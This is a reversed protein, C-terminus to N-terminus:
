KVQINNKQVISVGELELGNKVAKKLDTKNVEPKYKMYEEPIKADDAIELSESKRFSVKVRTTEFKTGNLYNGIYNKLSELRKNASQKREKFAKEEADLAEVEAKLNKILLCAGEIKSDLEMSLENFREVDFIEGTDQDFCAMIASDINYLNVKKVKKRKLQTNM